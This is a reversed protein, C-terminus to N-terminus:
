WTSETAAGVSSKAVGTAEAARGTITSDSAPSLTSPAPATTGFMGRRTAPWFRRLVLLFIVVSVMFFPKMHSSRISIRTRPGVHIRLHGSVSLSPSWTTITVLHRRDTGAPKSASRELPTVVILPVEIGYSSAIGKAFGVIKSELQKQASVVAIVFQGAESKLIEPEQFQFENAM